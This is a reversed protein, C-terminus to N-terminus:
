NPHISRNRWHGRSFLIVTVWNARAAFIGELFDAPSTVDQNNRAHMASEPCERKMKEGGDGSFSAHAMAEFKSNGIVGGHDYNTNANALRPLRSRSLAM